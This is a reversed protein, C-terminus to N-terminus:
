NGLEKLIEEQFDEPSQVLEFVIKERSNKLHIILRGFGFIAGLGRSEYSADRINDLDIYRMRRQFFSKQNLDLLRLNTLIYWDHRWVLYHYGGYAALFLFYFMLSYGTVWSAQFFYFIVAMFATALFIKFLPQALIWIHRRQAVIIEEAPKQGKFSLYEM